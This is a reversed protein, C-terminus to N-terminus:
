PHDRMASHVTGARAAPVTEEHLSGLNPLHTSLMPKAGDHATRGTLVRSVTKSRSDPWDPLTEDRVADRDRM